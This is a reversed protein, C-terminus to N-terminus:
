LVHQVVAQHPLALRFDIYRVLLVAVIFDRVNRATHVQGNARGGVRPAQRGGHATLYELYVLFLGDGVDRRHPLQEGRRERLRPQAGQQERDEARDREDEGGHANVTHHRERDRFSDALDADPHREARRATNHSTTPRPITRAPAPTNTPSAPANASVRNIFVRNNPTLAVSGNVKATIVSNSVATASSAASRGARRAVFTSGTIARLCSYDSHPSDRKPSDIIKLTMKIPGILAPLLVSLLSIASFSPMGQRRM